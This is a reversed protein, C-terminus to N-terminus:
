ERCDLLFSEIARFVRIAHQDSTAGYVCVLNGTMPLVVQVGGECMKKMDVGEASAGFRKSDGAALDTIAFADSKLRHVTTSMARTLKKMSLAYKLTFHMATVTQTTISSALISFRDTRLIKSLAHQMYMEPSAAAPFQHEVRLLGTLYSFQVLMGDFMGCLDPRSHNMLRHGGPTVQAMRLQFVHLHDWGALNPMAPPLMLEPMKELKQQTDEGPSAGSMAPAGPAVIVPTAAAAAARDPCFTSYRSRAPLVPFKRQDKKEEPAAKKEEKKQSHRDDEKVEM